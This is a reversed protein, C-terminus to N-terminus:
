NQSLCLCKFVNFKCLFTHSDPCVPNAFVFAAENLQRYPHNCPRRSAVSWYFKGLNIVGDQSPHLCPETFNSLLHIPNQGVQFRQLAAVFLCIECHFHRKSSMQVSIIEVFYLFCIQAVVVTLSKQFNRVFGGLLSELGESKILQRGSERNKDSESDTDSMQVSCAASRLSCVAYLPSVTFRRGYIVLRQSLVM